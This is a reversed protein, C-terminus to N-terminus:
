EPKAAEIVASIPALAIGKAPLTPLWQALAALTADQPHGIAIAVGRRRALEELARLNAAIAAADLKDDLFLDRAAHPVGLRQAIQAVPSRAAIRSELLLLGQAKLEDLLTESAGGSDAFTLDMHDYVGVYGSFRTLDWRLRRLLEDRQVAVAASGGDSRQSLAAIPVHVLLEHGARRAAEAERALDDAYAVFSLELPANLAIARETRARDIGLGDLVIVVRPRGDAAPSPAAFRQWTALAAPAPEAQPPPAPEAAMATEPAPAPKEPAPPAPAAPEVAPSPSPATAEPAPPPTPLPPPIPAVAMPPPPPPELPASVVLALLLLIFTLASWLAAHLGPRTM